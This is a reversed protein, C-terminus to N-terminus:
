YYLYVNSLNGKAVVTYTAGEEFYFLSGSSGGGIAQLYAVIQAGKRVYFYGITSSSAAAIYLTYFGTKDVTFSSGEAVNSIDKYRTYKPYPSGTIKGTAM